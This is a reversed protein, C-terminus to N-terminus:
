VFRVQEGFPLMFRNARFNTAIELFTLGVPKKGTVQTRNIEFKFATALVSPNALSHRLVNDWGPPVLTDAHLFLLIDGDALSAGQNLAPGRGGTAKTFRYCGLLLAQEDFMAAMYACSFPCAQLM